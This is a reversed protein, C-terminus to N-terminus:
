CETEKRNRGDGPIRKNIERFKARYAACQKRNEATGIEITKRQLWEYLKVAGDDPRYRRQGVWAYLNGRPIGAEDAVQAYTIIGAEVLAQVKNLIDTLLDPKSM